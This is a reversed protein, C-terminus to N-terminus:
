GGTEKVRKGRNKNNKTKTYMRRRKLAWTKPSTAKLEKGYKEEKKRKPDRRSRPLSM